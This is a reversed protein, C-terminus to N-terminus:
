ELRHTNDQLIEQSQTMRGSKNEIQVCLAERTGGDITSFNLFCYIKLLIHNQLSEPRAGDISGRWLNNFSVRLNLIRRCEIWKQINHSRSPFQMEFERTSNSKISFNWAFIKINSSNSSITSSDLARSALDIM